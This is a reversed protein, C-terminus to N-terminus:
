ALPTDSDSRIIGDDKIRGGVWQGNYALLIYTKGTLVLLTKLSNKDFEEADSYIKQASSKLWSCNSKSVNRLGIGVLNMMEAKELMAQDTHTWQNKRRQGEFDIQVTKIEIPTFEMVAIEAGPKARKMQKLASGILPHLEAVELEGLIRM